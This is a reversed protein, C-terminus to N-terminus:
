VLDAQELAVRLAPDERSQNLVHANVYMVRKTPEGSGVWGVIRELLEDPHGLEIPLEFIRSQRAESSALPAELVDQV